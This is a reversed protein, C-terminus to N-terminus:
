PQCARFCMWQFFTFRVNFHGKYVLSTSVWHLKLPFIQTELDRPLGMECM